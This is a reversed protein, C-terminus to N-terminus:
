KKPAISRARQTAYEAAMNLHLAKIAPDDIKQALDLEQQTRRAYYAEDNETTM